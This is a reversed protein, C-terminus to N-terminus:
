AGDGRAAYKVVDVPDLMVLGEAVLEEVTPLFARMKDESSVILVVVPLEDTLALLRDTHIRSSKGFGEIGRLVTAGGLGAAHARHVLETYLPRHHWQDNEGIIITLRMARGRLTM